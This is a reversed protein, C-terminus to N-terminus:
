RDVVRATMTAESVRQGDVSAVGRVKCTTSRKKVMEVELILQDGPVVPRRFKVDDM